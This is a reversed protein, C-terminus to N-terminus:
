APWSAVMAEAKAFDEETDIDLSADPLMCFREVGDEDFSFSRLRWRDVPAFYIAGNPVEARLSFSAIVSSKRNLMMADIHDASRFPSTPQLLMVSTVHYGVHRLAHRVVDYSSAQDAALFAPRRIVEAGWRKAIDVVGESDTSVAIRDVFGSCIAAEITWAILPKGGLLRTNKGPCRKSGARAPILGLIM